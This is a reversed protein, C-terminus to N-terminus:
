YSVERLFQLLAELAGLTSAHVMVGRTDTALSKMVSTLDSQCDEKLEELDDDPHVVVILPLNGYSPFSLGTLSIHLLPTLPTLPIHTNISCIYYHRLPVAYM